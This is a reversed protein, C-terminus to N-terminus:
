KTLKIIQNKLYTPHEMELGDNNLEQNRLQRRDFGEDDQFQIPQGKLKSDIKKVQQDNHALLELDTQEPLRDKDFWPIMAERPVESTHQLGTEKDKVFEMIKLNSM